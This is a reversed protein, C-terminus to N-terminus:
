KRPKRVRMQQLPESTAADVGCVAALAQVASKGVSMLAMAAQAGCGTAAYENLLPYAPWEEDAAWITGNPRLILIAAGTLDPGDGQEGGALWCLAAYAKSWDGSGGAVGGDPLRVLKSARYIVGAGNTLQTDAVM